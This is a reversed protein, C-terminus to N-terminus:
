LERELIYKGEVLSNKKHDLATETKKAEKHYCSKYFHKMHWTQKPPSFNSKFHWVTWPQEYISFKCM